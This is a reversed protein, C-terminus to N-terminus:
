RLLSGRRSSVRDLSEDFAHLAAAYKGDTYLGLGLYRYAEANSPDISLATRAEAIASDGDDDRYFLFALRAHIDSLGPMRDRADYYADFAENWDEVQQDMYGVAFHLAAKDPDASLFKQLIFRADHYRSQRVLETANVLPAPCDAVSSASSSAARIGRLLAASAGAALLAKESSQDAAFSVQRERVLLDLRQSALGGALFGLIDTCDMPQPQVQQGLAPLTVAILLFLLVKHRM